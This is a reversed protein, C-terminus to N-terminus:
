RKAWQPGRRARKLGPKKREKVRPDRTLFGAKKLTPKHEANLIVLARAIAHRAAQAQARIGGGYAHMVASYNREQGLLALPALVTRQLDKTAFYRELPKSNVSFNGATPWLRLKVMATKRRGVAYTYASSTAPAQVESQVQQDVPPALSAQSVTDRKSLAKKAPTVTKKRPARPKKPTTSKKTVPTM